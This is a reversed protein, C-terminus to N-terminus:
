NSVLVPWTRHTLEFFILSLSLAPPPFSFEFSLFPSFVCSLPSVEVSFLSLFCSIHHCSYSPSNCLLCCACPPSAIPCFITPHMLSSKPMTCLSSPYLLSLLPIKPQQHFVKAESESARLRATDLEANAAELRSKLADRGHM